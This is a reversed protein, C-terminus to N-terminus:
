HFDFSQANIIGSTSARFVSENLLCVINRYLIERCTINSMYHAFSILYFFCYKHSRGGLVKGLGKRGYGKAESWAKEILVSLFYVTITSLPCNWQMNRSITIVPFTSKGCLNLDFYHVMLTRQLVRSWSTFVFDFTSLKVEIFICICIVNRNLTGCSESHLWLSVWATYAINSATYHVPVTSSGWLLKPLICAYFIMEIDHWLNNHFLKPTVSSVSLM